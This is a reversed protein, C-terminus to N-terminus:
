SSETVRCTGGHNLTEQTGFEATRNWRPGSKPRRKDLEGALLHIAVPMNREGCLSLPITTSALTSYYHYTQDRSFVDM